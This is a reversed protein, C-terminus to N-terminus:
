GPSIQEGATIKRGPAIYAKHGIVTLEGVGGIKANESIEAREDVIARQVHAGTKIHAAHLIISDEVQAGEDVRVDPALISNLVVGGVTCGPSLLSETVRAGALLHAPLRQTGYTLIPWAPDDLALEAKSALLDMHAKWYSELTGVDRWYTELPFSWAKGAKVLRPVLEDGYDELESGEAVIDDMTALLRDADYVFVEATITAGKPEKPKYAFDSVRGDAGVQAVGYRSASEGPPLPTTVM